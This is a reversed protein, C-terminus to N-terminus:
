LFSSSCSATEKPLSTLGCSRPNKSQNFSVRPPQVSSLQNGTKKLCSMTWLSKWRTSGTEPNGAGVAFHITGGIKEDFLVKM